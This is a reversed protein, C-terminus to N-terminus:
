PGTIRGVNVLAENVSYARYELETGRVRVKGVWLAAGSAGRVLPLRPALDATIAEIIETRDLGLKDTHRFTHSIQNTDQGFVVEQGGSM